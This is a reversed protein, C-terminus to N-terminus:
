MFCLYVLIEYKKTPFFYLKEKMIVWALRLSTAHTKWEGPQWSSYNGLAIVFMLWYAQRVASENGVLFSIPSMM